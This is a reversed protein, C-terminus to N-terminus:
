KSAPFSLNLKRVSHLDADLNGVCLCFPPISVIDGLYSFYVAKLFNLIFSLFLFRCCTAFLIRKM